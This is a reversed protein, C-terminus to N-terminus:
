QNKEQILAAPFSLNFLPKLAFYLPIKRDAESIVGFQVPPEEAREM